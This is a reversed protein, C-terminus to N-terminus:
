NRAPIEFANLLACTLLYMGVLYAMEVLGVRGFSNQLTAFMPARQEIREKNSLVSRSWEPQPVSKAVTNMPDALVQM